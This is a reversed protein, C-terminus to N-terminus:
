PSGPRDSSQFLSQNDIRDQFAATLTRFGANNKATVVGNAELSDVLRLADGYGLLLRRQLLAVSVTRATALVSKAKDFLRHQRGDDDMAAM